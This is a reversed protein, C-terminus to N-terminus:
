SFRRLIADAARIGDVASSVIGGAYGSGEGAPYLGKIKVSQYNDNRLIRVPSSSRTEAGLLLANESLFGKMKRNFHVLAKRIEEAMWYPILEELNAARVGPRYSSGPLNVDLKKEMFSLARQAPAIFGGGGAIYAKREIDEQFEIGSLIMNGTDEPRVTVIVASNSFLSDRKSYSMGNICLMKQESSSNIVIGGPCMCFTYTGRKTVGNNYAMSYDPAPLIDRYESSGYQISRILEAPHEIRLGMAFGKREMTVDKKELLRYVDRASHGAALILLSAPYERGFSTRIGEIKGKRIVLDDVREHFYVHSGQSIIFERINQVIARVRDTGLHPKSEVLVSSDAGFEVLQKYFWSVEPRNIRTTLKGDSYTGAGGEGFLVNSEPDLNGNAELGKIDALRESVEKGREFIEVEVGANVLRLASFLGAPGFGIIKVKIKKKIFPPCPFNNKRYHTVQDRKLLKDAEEDSVEVLVRYTYFINNKKRADLSKKLITYSVKKLGYDM